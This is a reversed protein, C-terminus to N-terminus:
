AEKIWENIETPSMLWREGNYLVPARDTGIRVTLLGFDKEEYPINKAALKKKIMECIPCMPLTYLETM